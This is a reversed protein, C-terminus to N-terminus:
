PVMPSTFWQAMSGVGPRFRSGSPRPLTRDALRRARPRIATTM